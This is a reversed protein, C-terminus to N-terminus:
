LEWISSSKRRFKFLHKHELIFAMPLYL